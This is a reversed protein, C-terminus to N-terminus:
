KKRVDVVLAQINGASENQAAVAVTMGLHLNNMNKVTGALGRFCTSPTVQFTYTKGDRGLITFSTTSLATVQGVVTLAAQAKPGSAIRLALLSRDPLERSVLSIKMGTKLDALKAVQGFYMTNADVKVVVNKNKLTDLTITNATTNVATITGDHRVITGNVGVVVAMLSGGALRQASIVAKMGVKLDSLKHIEGAYITNSDVSIITSGNLTLNDAGIATIKGRWIQDRLATDFGTPLIIVQRAVSADASVTAHLIMWANAQLDTFAGMSGDPKIYRTNADVGVVEQTGDLFKVTFQNAGLATVQAIGSRLCEAATINLRNMISQSVGAPTTNQTQTQAAAYAVGGVALAAVLVISLTITIKKFM